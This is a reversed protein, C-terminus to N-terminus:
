MPPASISRDNIIIRSPHSRVLLFKHRLSLVGDSQLRWAERRAYPVGPLAEDLPRDVGVYARNRNEYENQNVLFFPSSLRLSLPSLVSRFDLCCCCSFVSAPFILNGGPLELFCSFCRVFVSHPRGLPPAPPFRRRWNIKQHCM